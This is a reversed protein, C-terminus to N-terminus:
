GLADALAFDLGSVNAVTCKQIFLAGNPDMRYAASNLIARDTPDYKAISQPTMACPCVVTCLNKSITFAKNAQIIATNSSSTCNGEFFQGPMVEAAIGLSFFIILFIIVFIQFVCILISNGKKIGYIGLASGLVVLFSSVAMVGM